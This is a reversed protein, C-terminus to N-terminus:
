RNNALFGFAVPVITLLGFAPLITVGIPLLLKINLKSIRDHQAFEQDRRAQASSNRLLSAAGAGTQIALDILKQTQNACEAPPQFGMHDQFKSRVERAAVSPPLGADLALAVCDSFLGPDTLTPKADSLLRKSWYHGAFLLASGILVAILALTNSFVAGIPNLGLLQALGIGAVPLWAILKATLRPTEFALHINRQSQQNSELGEALRNLSVAIPAGLDRALAWHLGLEPTEELQASTLRLAQEPTIGASILNALERVQRVADGSFNSNAEGQAVGEIVKATAHAAANAGRSIANSM